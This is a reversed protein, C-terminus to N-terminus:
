YDSKLQRARSSHQEPTLGPQQLRAELPPTSAKSQQEAINLASLQLHLDTLSETLAPGAQKLDQRCGAAAAAAELGSAAAAAGAPGALLAATSTFAAVGAAAATAAAAAAAHGTSSNATCSATCSCLLSLDHQQERIKSGHNSGAQPLSSHTGKIGQKSQPAEKHQM